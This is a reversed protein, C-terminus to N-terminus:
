LRVRKGCRRCHVGVRMWEYRSWRVRMGDMFGSDTQLVFRRCVPKWNHLGLRCLINM